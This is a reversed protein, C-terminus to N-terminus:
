RLGVKAGALGHVHPLLQVESDASGEGAELGDPQLPAEGAQGAQQEAVAAALEGGHSEHDLPVLGDGVEHWLWEPIYM